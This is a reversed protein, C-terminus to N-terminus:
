PKLMFTNAAAKKIKEKNFYVTFHVDNAWREFLNNYFRNGVEGSQGPSNTFYAGDWDGVDVVMRFTAGALQNDLNTTMGPTSGNGGRPAPGVELKKRTAEDVVASLPHKVWVHHNKAQGYQWKSQDAGLKQQLHAICEEFSKKLMSNKNTLQNSQLLAIVKSLPITKILGQAQIPILEKSVNEVLKREWAMYISAAVSNKDMLYQWDLLIKKADNIEAQEFNINNLFPILARAPLSLYDVQLKTMDEITFKPQSALVENIRQARFPDAWNWAVADRHVYNEPILNENATAWFGKEPNTIHPLSDIPLYGD